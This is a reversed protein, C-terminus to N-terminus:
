QIAQRQYCTHSIDFGGTKDYNLQVNKRNVLICRGERENLDLKEKLSKIISMVQRNENNSCLQICMLGWVPRYRLNPLARPSPSFHIRTGATLSPSDNSERKGGREREQPYTLM